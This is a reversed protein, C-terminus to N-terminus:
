LLKSIFSLDIYKIELSVPMFAFEFRLTKLIEFSFTDITFNIDAGTGAQQLFSQQSM